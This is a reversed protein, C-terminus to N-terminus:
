FFRFMKRTIRSVMLVKVQYYVTKDKGFFYKMSFQKPIRAKFM